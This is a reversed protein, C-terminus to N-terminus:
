ELSSEAMNKGAAVYPSIVVNAGALKLKNSAEQSAARAILRCISNIAKASLIVYLNDADSPLTAILSRCEKIGALHLTHDLTADAELVNIGKLSAQNKAIPDSEIVLFPVDKQQLQAAIEQGVRGFGCIIVHNKMRRLARRLRLEKMKRFYGSESLAVFRQLSLQVVILGGGIILITVIRGAASLPEVEGFGITTITILVMWLSDGWDWGETLRYGLAGLLFLIGLLVFPGIWQALFGKFQLEKDSKNRM